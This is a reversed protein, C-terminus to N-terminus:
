EEQPLSNKNLVTAARPEYTHNKLLINKSVGCFMGSLLREFVYELGQEPKQIFHNPLPKGESFMPYVYDMLKQTLFKDLVAGSIWFMTGAAFFSWKKKIHPFKSCIFEIGKSNIEQLGMSYDVDVANYVYEEPAAFGIHKSTKPCEFAAALIELNNKATLALLDKGGAICASKQIFKSFL